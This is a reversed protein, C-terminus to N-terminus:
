VLNVTVTIRSSDLSAIQRINIPFNATNVPPNATDVAFATVDLVGVVGINPDTPAPFVSGSLPRVYVEGGPAYELQGYNLLANEIQTVGDGPFTERNATVTIAIYLDVASPRTYFVTEQNDQSDVVTKSTGNGSYTDCAATKSTFILNALLQDDASTNGPQYAIVEISHPPLGNVDTEDTANNLVTCSLTDTTTTPTILQELVDARIADATSSGAASLEQQQRLRYDADTEINNGEIGDTPNTVTNWGSLPQAIITLTGALCQIPGTNVAQFDVTENSATGGPNNVAQVNQFLQANNTGVISAFMTGPAATFGANVNVTCSKVLTQTADLKPTGILLGIGVLQDDTAQDRDMGSYLAALALWGEALAAAFGGNILGMLATPGVDLSASINQLQYANIDSLIADLTKTNFGSPVVGWPPGPM